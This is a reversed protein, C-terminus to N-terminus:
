IAPSVTIALVKGGQSLGGSVPGCTAADGTVIVTIHHAEAILAANILDSDSTVFNFLTANPDNQRVGVTANTKDRTLTHAVVVTPITGHANCASHSVSPPLNFAASATLLTLVKKM